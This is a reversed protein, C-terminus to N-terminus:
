PLASPRQSSSAMTTTGEPPMAPPSSSAPALSQAPVTLALASHLTARGPTVKLPAAHNVPMCPEIRTCPSAHVPCTLQPRARPM